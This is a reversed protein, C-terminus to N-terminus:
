PCSKKTQKKTITSLDEQMTRWKEPSQRQFDFYIIDVMHITHRRLDQGGKKRLFSPMKIPEVCKKEQFRRM